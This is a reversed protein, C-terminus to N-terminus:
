EPNQATTAANEYVRIELRGEAFSLWTNSTGSLGPNKGVFDIYGDYVHASAERNGGSSYYAAWVKLRNAFKPSTARLRGAEPWSWTIDKIQDDNVFFNTFDDPVIADITAVFLEYSNGAAPQQVFLQLLQSETLQNTFGTGFTDPAGIYAYVRLLDNETFTIYDFGTDGLQVAPDSNNIIDLFTFGELAGLEGLELKDNGIVAMVTSATMSLFSHVTNIARKMANFEFDRLFHKSPKGTMLAIKEPTDEKEEIYLLARQSQNDEAM